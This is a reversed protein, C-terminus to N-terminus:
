TDMWSAFDVTVQPLPDQVVIIPFDAARGWWENIPLKLRGFTFHHRVLLLDGLEIECGGFLVKPKQHIFATSLLPEGNCLSAPLNEVLADRLECLSLNSVLEAVFAPEGPGKWRGASSAALGLKIAEVKVLRFEDWARQHSNSVYSGLAVQLTM